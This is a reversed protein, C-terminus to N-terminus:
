PQLRREVYRLQKYAAALKGQAQNLREALPSAEDPLAPQDHKTDDAEGPIEGQSLFPKLTAALKTAQAQVADAVAELYSVQKDISLDSKDAVHKPVDPLMENIAGEVSPAEVMEKYAPSMQSRDLTPELDDLGCVTERTGNVERVGFLPPDSGHVEIVSVKPDGDNATRFDQGTYWADDGVAPSWRETLSGM